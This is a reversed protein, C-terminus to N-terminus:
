RMLPPTPLIQFLELETYSLHPRDPLLSGYRTGLIGVYVDCSRVRDICVQAPTQDEAPLDAMDVVLHGAANIAREAAAVYSGGSPYRRLESTQSIFVRWRPDEAIVMGIM